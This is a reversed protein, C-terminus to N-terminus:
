SVSRSRPSTTDLGVVPSKSQEVMMREWARRREPHVGVRGQPRRSRCRENPGAGCAPCALERIKEREAVRQRRKEEQSALKSPEMFRKKYRNCRELHNAKRPEGDAGVCSQGARAGCRLCGVKARVTARYVNGRNGM